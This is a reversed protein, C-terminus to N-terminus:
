LCLCLCLCLCICLYVFLCMCVCVSAFPPSLSLSISVCAVEFFRFVLKIRAESEDARTSAEKRVAESQRLQLLLAERQRGQEKERWVAREVEEAESELRREFDIKIHTMDELGRSLIAMERERAEGANREVQRELERAAELRRVQEILAKSSDGGAAISAEMCAIRVKNSVVEEQLRGVTVELEEKSRKEAAGEKSAEELRMALEEVRTKALTLEREVEDLQSRSPLLHQEHEGAEKTLRDAAELLEPPPSCSPSRPLWAEMTNINIDRSAAAM